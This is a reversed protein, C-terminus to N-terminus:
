PIGKSRCLIARRAQRSASGSECHCEVLPTIEIAAHASLLSLLLLAPTLLHKMIHLNQFLNFKTLPSETNSLAPM